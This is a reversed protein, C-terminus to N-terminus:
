LPHLLGGIVRGDMRERDGYFLHSIKKSSDYLCTLSYIYIFLLFVNKKPNLHDRKERRVM